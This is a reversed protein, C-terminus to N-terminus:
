EEEGVTHLIYSHFGRHALVASAATWICLVAAASWLDIASEASGRAVTTGGVRLLGAAYSSMGLGAEMLRVAAGTPLLGLLPHTWIRLIELAPLFLPAMVATAVVFYSNVGNTRVSLYIGLFIFVLSSGIVGAALPAPDIGQVGAGTVSIIGSVAVAIVLLSVARVAIFRLPRLPTVFLGEYVREEREWQVIAGVFFFGLATTDTYLIILTVVARAESPIYILIAMYLLTVLVYAGVIGRRLHSLLDYKLLV